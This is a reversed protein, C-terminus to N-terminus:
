KPTANGPVLTRRQRDYILFFYIAEGIPPILFFIVIWLVKLSMAYGSLKILHLVMGVILLLITVSGVMGVVGFFLALLVGHVSHADSDIKPFLWLVGIAVSALLSWWASFRLIKVAKNSMVATSFM